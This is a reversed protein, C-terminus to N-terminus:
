ARTKIRWGTSSQAKDHKRCENDCYRFRAISAVGIRLMDCSNKCLLVRSDVADSARDSPENSFSAPVAPAMPARWRRAQAVRGRPPTRARPKRRVTQSRCQRAQDCNFGIRVEGLQQAIPQPAGINLDHIAIGGRHWERVRLKRPTRCECHQVM